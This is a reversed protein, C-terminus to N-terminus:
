TAVLFCLTLHGLADIQGLPRAEQRMGAVGASVPRQKGMHGAGLHWKDKREGGEPHFHQM